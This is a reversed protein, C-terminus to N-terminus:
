DERLRVYVRMDQRFPSGQKRISELKFGLMEAWRNAPAFDDQTQIEIRHYKERLQEDCYERVMRTASLAHKPFHKSLVSWGYGVGEEYQMIGAIGVITPPQDPGNEVIGTLGGEKALAVRYAPIKCKAEFYKQHEQIEISALHWPELKVLKFTAQM